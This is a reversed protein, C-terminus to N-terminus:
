FFPKLFPVDISSQYLNKSALVKILLFRKLTIFGLFIERHFGFGYGNKETNKVKDEANKDNKV